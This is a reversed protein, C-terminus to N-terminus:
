APCSKPPLRSTGNCPTILHYSTTYRIPHLLTKSLTGDPHPLNPQQPAPFSAYTRELKKHRAVSDRPCTRLPKPHLCSRFELNPPLATEKMLGRHYRLGPNPPLRASVAPSLKSLIKPGCTPFGVRGTEDWIASAFRVKRPLKAAEARYAGAERRLKVIAMAM